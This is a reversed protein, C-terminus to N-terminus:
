EFFYRQAEKATRPDEQKLKRLYKKAKAVNQDPEGDISRVREAVLLYRFIARKISPVDYEGKGYFSVIKDMSEWDKWRALDLIVLDAIQPKSLLSRMARRLHPKSSENESYTWMFRLAQLTPFVDTYSATPLSLLENELVEFGKEGALLLYGSTMGDIGFKYDEPNKLIISKLFDADEPQGCLGIMLGYLGLRVFRDAPDKPNALWSRVKKRNMLPALPVIDKYPAIAFESFADSAITQDDHELFHIYYTLRQTTPVEQGPANSLYDFSAPTMDIFLNWKLRKDVHNAMLLVLAGAESHRYRDLEVHDGKELLSDQGKVIEVIEFQTIGAFERSRDAKEGGSFKGLVVVDYAAIQESFSPAAEGCFPCALLNNATLSVAYLCILVYLHNMRNRM